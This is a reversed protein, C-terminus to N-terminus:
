VSADTQVLQMPMKQHMWLRNPADTLADTSAAFIRIPLDSAKHYLQTEAVVERLQEEAATGSVGKRQSLSELQGRVYWWMENVDRRVTRRCVEYEKSPGNVLRSVAEDIDGGASPEEVHDM